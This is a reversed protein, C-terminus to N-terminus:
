VHARGIKNYPENIPLQKSRLLECQRNLLHAYRGYLVLVHGNGLVAMGGPWMPGGALRPSQCRTALTIPDILQVQATTALGLHAGLVSHTLLFVEGPAGLVTM